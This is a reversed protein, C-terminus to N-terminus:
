VLLAILMLVIGIASVTWVATRLGPIGFAYVPVYVIRAWFWLHAGTAGLGGTKGTVALALAVAAFAPFTELLNYFAREIRGGMVGEIKRGEDRPTLAYPLGFEGVAALTQLVLQVLLLVVGWGLLVIETPMDNLAEM